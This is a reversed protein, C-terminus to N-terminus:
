YRHRSLSELRNQLIEIKHEFDKGILKVIEEKHTQYILERAKECNFESLMPCKIYEDSQGNFFAELWDRTRHEVNMVKDTETYPLYDVIIDDITENTVKKMHKKFTDLIEEFTQQKM